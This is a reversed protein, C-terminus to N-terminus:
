DLGRLWSVLSKVGHGTAGSTGLDNKKSNYASGAIDLHVWPYAKKESLKGYREGRFNNQDVFHSLFLGATLHGANTGPLSTNILDSLEGKVAHRLVEPLPTHVALEGQEVFASTIDRILNKDNGMVAAYHESVARVCAGTLTAADVIYKPDLMTAYSLADALTLRGEADTNWVEVTQGSYTTLIDDAKYSDENVMNEAYASIWHVETHELGGLEALTKMVGTMLASGGMDMKMTRMHGETKIDMGGSDYTLGKGILCVRSTSIQNKPKLIMHSLIPKFRSGRGVMTIGEMGKIELQDYSLIEHTINPYHQFESKLIGRISEPNLAEPTEEILTRNLSIGKDLAFLEQMDNNTLVDELGTGFSIDYSKKVSSKKNLYKDFQWSRQSIGLILQQAIKSTKYPQPLNAIELATVKTDQLHSAIKAGLIYYNPKADVDSTKVKLIYEIGVFLIDLEPFYAIQAFKGEFDLKEFTKIYEHNKTTEVTLFIIKTHHSQSEVLQIM